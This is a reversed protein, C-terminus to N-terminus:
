QGSPIRRRLDRLEVGPDLPWNQKYWEGLWFEGYLSEMADLFGQSHEDRPYSRAGYFGGWNGQAGYKWYDEAAYRAHAPM